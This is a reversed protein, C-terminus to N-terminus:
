QLVEYVTLKGTHSTVLFDVVIKIARHGPMKEQLVFPVQRDLSAIIGGHLWMKLLVYCRSEKASDFVIGDIEKKRSRYKSPKPGDCAAALSEPVSAGRRQYLKSLEATSWNMEQAFSAM